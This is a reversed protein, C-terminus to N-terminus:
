SVKFATTCFARAWRGYTVLTEANTRAVRCSEVAEKQYVVCVIVQIGRNPNAYELRMEESSKQHANFRKWLDRTVFLKSFRGFPEPNAQNM